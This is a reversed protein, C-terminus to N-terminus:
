HCMQLANHLLPLSPSERHSRPLSDVQWHLLYPNSGQDLSIGCVTSYGLGQSVVIQAQARSVLVLLMGQRGYEALFAVAILLNCVAVLTARVRCISFLGHLLFSRACGFILSNFFFPSSLLETNGWCSPTQTRLWFDLLRCM